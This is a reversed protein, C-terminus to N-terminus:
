NENPLLSPRPRPAPPFVLYSPGFANATVKWVVFRPSNYMYKEPFKEYVAHNLFSPLKQAVSTLLFMFLVMGNLM